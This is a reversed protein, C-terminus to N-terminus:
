EKVVMGCGHYVQGKFTVRLTQAYANDSMGDNCFYPLTVLKLQASDNAALYITSDGSVSRQTLKMKLPAEWDALLFSISDKTDYAINWFPENGIGYVVIGQKGKNRWTKNDMIDNLHQLAYTKKYRPSYYQLTDGKWQYRARVVQDQYLWIMGDSPVWTGESISVSDKEAVKRTEQLRYTHNSFFQVTHGTPAQPDATLVFHYIGSPAPTRNAVAQVPEDPKDFSTAQHATTTDVAITKQFSDITASISTHTDPEQCSALILLLIIFRNCM